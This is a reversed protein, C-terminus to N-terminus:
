NDYKVGWVSENSGVASFTMVPTGAEDPMECFVGKYEKDDYSMSMYYSGEEYTWSGTYNESSISGDSNFYFIEPEAIEHNIEIGQNIVYYRGIVNKKDYGAESVTEGSTAYPLVCPWKDENLLYQKVRPAHTESSAAFRTHYCIYRKGDKDIMASNHGTAMYGLELSPMYYNGSLKLGFYGHAADSGLSQGNMDVYEGDVKDSRFVRIQYGGDRNLEGYSLFLYYYKAQEDYIIFPAEISKHGGGLLKKGFYPDIGNELDEEPHIVEGTQEDIELLFIGGSWSGYVMWMRGDADYFVTPDLANPYDEYNYEFGAKKTYRSIATEEDVYDLVNTAHITNTTFGSYILNGKWEYPGEINESTAYVINSTNWNSSVCHYMYYLGQAKNYIVDPAWVHVSGDDTPNLSLKYGAYDFEGSSTDVLDGFVKNKNSYGNTMRTWNTLDTTSAAEMHSGFIYYTGNEEIISPDHVAVDKMATSREINEYDVVYDKEEAGCGAVTLTTVLLAMMAIVKKNMFIVM